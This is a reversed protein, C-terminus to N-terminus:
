LAAEVGLWYYNLRIAPNPVIAITLNDDIVVQWREESKGGCVHCVNPTAGFRKQYRTAAEVIKVGLKKKPDDDYWLLGIDM